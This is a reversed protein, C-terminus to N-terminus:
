RGLEGLLRALAESGQGRLRAALWAAQARMADPLGSRGVAAETLAELRTPDDAFKPDGRAGVLAALAATTRGPWTILPESAWAPAPEVRLFGTLIAQCLTEDGRRAATQVAAMVRDEENHTLLRKVAMPLTETVPQDSSRGGAAELIGVWGARAADPDIEELREIMWADAPGYRQEALERAAEVTGTRSAVARGMAGIARVLASQGEGVLPQFMAAPAGPSGELAVLALRLRDSLDDARAYAEGWVPAASAADVRLWARLAERQVGPDGAGAEFMRAMAADCGTVKDRRVQESLVLVAPEREPAPLGELLAALREGAGTDGGNCLLLLASIAVVPSPDEALAKLRDTGGNGSDLGRSALWGRLVVEVFPALGESQLLARVEEEVLLDSRLAEGIISSREESSEIKSLLVARLRAPSELEALGMVGHRRLIPSPASTLRAFLPQLAPDRLQRLAALAGDNGRPLTPSVVARQLPALLREDLAGPAGFAGPVGLLLVGAFLARWRLPRM